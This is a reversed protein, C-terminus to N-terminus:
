GILTWVPVLWRVQTTTAQIATLLNGTAEIWSVGGDISRGIHGAGFGADHVQMQLSNYPWGGFAQGNWRVDEEIWQIETWASGDYKWLGTNNGRRGMMLLNNGSSSPSETLPEGEVESTSSPGYTLSAHIPSIDAFGGAAPVPGSTSKALWGRMGIYILSDGLSSYPVFLNVGVAASLVITGIDHQAFTAGGNSSYYIWTKLGVDVDCVWIRDTTHQSVWFSYGNGSQFETATLRTWSWTAAGDPAADTKGFWLAGGNFGVCLAVYDQENPSMMMLPLFDNSAGTATQMQALTLINTWAPTTDRIGTTRWLGTSSLTYANHEPDYPDLRFVLPSGTIRTAGSGSVDRWTPSGSTFNETGIVIGTNDAKLALGFVTGAAEIPGSGSPPPLQTGVPMTLTLDMVYGAERDIIHDAAYVFFKTGSLGTYGETVAVIDRCRITPKGKAKVKATKTLRNFIELNVQATKDASSQTDILAHSVVLTKYFNNPLWISAEQRTAHLGNAGYAVVRNRLKEDSETYEISLIDGSDGTTLTHEASDVDDPYPRRNAFHVQGNGDAYCIFGCIRSINDIEDWASILNIETPEVVGFTFGSADSTYNTIGSMALIQRVFEEATLNSATFPAAQDDPAIFNDVAKILIDHIVITIHSEPRAYHIEKVIGGTLMAANEDAYGMTIDVTESGVRLTTGTCIIEASVAAQAYSERLTITKVDTCGSVSLYLDRITTM